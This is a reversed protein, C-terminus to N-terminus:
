GFRVPLSRPARFGRSTIHLNEPPLDFGDADPDPALHAAAKEEVRDAVTYKQSPTHQLTAASLKAM